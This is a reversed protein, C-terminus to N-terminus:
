CLGPCAAGCVTAMLTPIALSAGMQAGTMAVAGVAAGGLAGEVLSVFQKKENESLKELDIDNNLSLQILAHQAEPAMRVLMAFWLSALWNDKNPLLPEDQKGAPLYLIDTAKVGSEALQKTIIRRKVEFGKAFKSESVQNAFTFILITNHWINPGFAQTFLRIADEDESRFRTDTMQVCYLVLDVKIGDMM